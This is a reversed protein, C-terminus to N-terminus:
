HAHCEPLASSSPSSMDMGGHSAHEGSGNGHSGHSADSGHDSASASAEEGPAYNEKAGSYDRVPVSVDQTGGDTELQLTLDSGAKLSCTLDMLMIHNGGPELNVSQGPAITFGDKKEQMETAGTKPDKVTEHMQVDDATGHAAASKLTVEKDSTNTVKGFVATMGSDAAKAWGDEIKLAGAAAAHSASSSGSASPAQEGNQASCGTLAALGLGLVTVAAVARHAPRVRRDSRSSTHTTTNM